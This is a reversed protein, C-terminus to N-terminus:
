RSRPGTLTGPKRSCRSNQAAWAQSNSHCRSGGTRGRSKQPRPFTEQTEAHWPGPSPRRPASEHTRVSEWGKSIGAKAFGGTGHIPSRKFLVLETEAVPEAGEVSHDSVDRGM